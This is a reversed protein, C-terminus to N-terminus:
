APHARPRGRLSVWLIVAGGLAIALWALHSADGFLVANMRRGPVLTILGTIGLAQVYLSRMIQMHKEIQRARAARVGRFLSVIVVVSFLHILGYGFLTPGVAATIFATSLAVVAMTTVWIYGATKHLRDRSRRLLAVAGSAIALLAAFAHIQIPLSATLIPDLTM